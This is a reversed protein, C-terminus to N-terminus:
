IKTHFTVSWSLILFIYILNDKGSGPECDIVKEVSRKKKKCVFCVLIIYVTLAISVVCLIGLLVMSITYWEESIQFMGVTVTGSDSPADDVKAVTTVPNSKKQTAGIPKLNFGKWLDTLPGCHIDKFMECPNIVVQNKPCRRCARCRELHQNYYQGKRCPTKDNSPAISNCYVLNCMVSLLFVVSAYSIDM